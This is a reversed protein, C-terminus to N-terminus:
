TKMEVEKVFEEAYQCITQNETLIVQSILFGHLYKMVEIKPITILQRILANICEGIELTCLHEKLTGLNAHIRRKIKAIWILEYIEETNESKSIRKLVSTLTRKKPRANYFPNEFEFEDDGNKLLNALIIEQLCSILFSETLAQPSTTQKNYINLMKKVTKLNKQIFIREKDTTLDKKYVLRSLYEDNKKFYLNLDEIVVDNVGVVLGNENQLLEKTIKSERIFKTVRDIDILRATQLLQGIKLYFAEMLSEQYQEDISNESSLRELVKRFQNKIRILEKLKDESPMSFSSIRRISTLIGNWDSIINFVLDEVELAFRDGVEKRIEYKIEAIVEGYKSDMGIISKDVYELSPRSLIGIINIKEGKFKEYKYLLKLLKLVSYQQDSGFKSLDFKLTNKLKPKLGSPTGEIKMRINELIDADTNHLVGAKYEETQIEECLALVSLRSPNKKVGIEFNGQKIKNAEEQNFWNRQIYYDVSVVGYPTSIFKSKFSSYKPDLIFDKQNPDLGYDKLEQRIEEDIFNKYHYNNEM